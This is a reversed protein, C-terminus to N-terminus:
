TSPPSTAARRQADAWAQRAASPVCALVNHSNTYFVNPDNNHPGYGSEGRVLLTTNAKVSMGAFWADQRDGRDLWMVWAKTGTRARQYVSSIACLRADPNERAVSLLWDWQAALRQQRRGRTAIRWALAAVFSAICLSPCILAQLTDQSRV